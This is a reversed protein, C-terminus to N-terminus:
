RFVTKLVFPRLKEKLNETVHVQIKTLAITEKNKQYHIVVPTTGPFAGLIESIQSDFQHNEVLLWYKQSIAMQVQQCVMQLRHDREKIRGKLYYFEGEKLQDKYIAYEQPFLTVDLKKKTDNVSLFAMQQGSTKTRIIRISDIQILVVAESEKVLQSIPTFTQTSKEAIDILPHKSMGVGVIEQELSYKETVSYDKTDVWSFSSDSFLSGLENVFVLLGDLNDLIKKRNPEFCDFLGIKILPELFVKKQYKEPTRTLFDEVSNFPRQEIIWYAFDRPLGKINKLGMYIKSAEIKDTYPISNITVQAVQFDSELADTIYDSSSYNMMIDYFVAPYHAKFYALQFALASYAFAHSRNFGYGAFKEMRKFLGRATEEARGLHKASAIFDEEMKQM